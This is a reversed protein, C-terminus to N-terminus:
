GAARFTVGDLSLYVGKGFCAIVEGNRDVDLQGIAGEGLAVTHASRCEPRYDTPLIFIVGKGWDILGHTVIGRLHVIGLSDKFFGAPAYGEAKSLDTLNQWNNKFDTVAHWSEQTVTLGTKFTAPGAEVTLGRRFTAIDEATLGRKFTAIDGATLGRFTATDEATLGKKFTAIDEATLGRKFTAIDEATLGRQFTAIDEAALGKKFTAAGDEVTLGRRFTAIDEATLGRKFTAIDEATLGTKFTAIDEAALGKKFTAAGGEVM